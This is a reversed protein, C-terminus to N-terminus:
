VRGSPEVRQDVGSRAPFRGRLEAVFPVKVPEVDLALDHYAFQSSIDWPDQFALNHMVGTTRAHDQHVLEWLAVIRKSVHLNERRQV